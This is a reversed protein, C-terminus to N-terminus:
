DTKALSITDKRIEVGTKLIEMAFPNEDEIDKTSILHPEIRSDFSSALILLQVQLEFKEDDTLNKFILAVDIDSHKKNLRRAYSGFLYAKIVRSYLEKVSLVFKIIKKDTETDM